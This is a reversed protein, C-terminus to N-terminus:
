LTTCFRVANMGPGRVLVIVETILEDQGHKKKSYLLRMLEADAIDMKQPCRLNVARPEKHIPSVPSTYWKVISDKTDNVAIAFVTRQLSRMNSYHFGQFGEVLQKAIERLTVTTTSKRYAFPDHSVNFTKYASLNQEWEPCELIELEDLRLNPCGIVKLDKKFRFCNNKRNYRRLLNPKLLICGNVGDALFIGDKEKRITLLCFGIRETTDEIPFYLSIRKRDSESASFLTKQTDIEFPTSGLSDYFVLPPDELVPSFTFTGTGCVVEDPCYIDPDEEYVFVYKGCKNHLSKSQIGFYECYRSVDVADGNSDVPTSCYRNGAGYLSFEDLYRQKFGFDSKQTLTWGANELTLGSLCQQVETPRNYVQAYVCSVAIQIAELVDSSESGLTYNLRQLKSTASSFSVRLPPFPQPLDAPSGVISADIQQRMHLTTVGGGYQSETLVDDIGQSIMDVLRYNRESERQDVPAFDSIGTILKVLEESSAYDELPNSEVHGLRAVIHRWLFLSASSVPIPKTGDDKKDYQWTPYEKYFQYDELGYTPLFFPEHDSQYFEMDKSIPYPLLSTGSGQSVNVTGKTKLDDLEPRNTTSLLVQVVLKMVSCFEKKFEMMSRSPFDHEFARAAADFDLMSSIKDKDGESMYLTDVDDATTQHQKASQLLHLRFKLSEEQRRKMDSRVSGSKPGKGTDSPIRQFEPEDKLTLCDRLSRLTYPFVNDGVVHFFVPYNDVNGTKFANQAIRLAKDQQARLDTDQIQLNLQTDITDQFLSIYQECHKILLQIWGDSYLPILKGSENIVDEQFDIDGTSINLLCYEGLFKRKEYAVVFNTRPEFYSSLTGYVLEFGGSEGDGNKQLAPVRPEVPGGLQSTKDAYLRLRKAARPVDLSYGFPEFSSTKKTSKLLVYGEDDFLAKWKAKDEANKQGVMSEFLKRTRENYKKLLGSVSYETAQEFLTRVAARASPYYLM